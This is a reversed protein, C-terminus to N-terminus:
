SPPELERIKKGMVQEFAERAIDSQDEPYFIMGDDQLRYSVGKEELMGIFQAQKQPDFIVVSQEAAKEPSCASLLLVLLVTKLKHM